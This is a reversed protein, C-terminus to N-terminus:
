RLAIRIIENRSQRRGVAVEDADLFIDDFQLLSEVAFVVAINRHHGVVIFNHGASFPVVNLYRCQVIRVTRNPNVKGYVSLDYEIIQIFRIRNGAFGPEANHKLRIVRIPIGM